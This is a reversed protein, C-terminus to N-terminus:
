ATVGAAASEVRVVRGRAGRILRCDSAAIRRCADLKYQLSPPLHPEVLPLLARRAEAGVFIRDHGKGDPKVSCPGYTDSLWAAATDISERSFGETHLILSGRHGGGDDGIWWSLGVGGIADLWERTIVKQGNPAVLALVPSLCPLCSTAMRVHTEGYGGNPAENVRVDLRRLLAAKHAVWDRQPGGHNATVRPHKSRGNPLGISSDGLLTGLIAQQETETLELQWNAARHAHSNAAYQYYARQGGSRIFQEVTDGVKLRVQEGCDCACLPANARLEAFLIQWEERTRKRAQSQHGLVWRQQRGWRNRGLLAGCGCACPIASQHQCAQSRPRPSTATASM